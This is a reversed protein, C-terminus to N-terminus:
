LDKEVLEKGTSTKDINNTLHLMTTIARFDLQEKRTLFHKHDGYSKPPSPAEAM